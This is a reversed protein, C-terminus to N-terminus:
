CSPAARLIGRAAAVVEEPGVVRLCAPTGTAGCPPVTINGCPQCPLSAQIGVQVAPDGWPGFVAQSTPGYLRVTPTGVAAALHLPGSDGGLVLSCREFLAALQGLSTRGALVLPRPSLGRAIRESRFLTTYPFLTSRPPRRIMLFFFLFVM